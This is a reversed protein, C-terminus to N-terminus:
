AGPSTDVADKGSSGPDSSGTVTAAVDDSSIKRPAGWANDRGDRAPAM